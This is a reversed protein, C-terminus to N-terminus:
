DGTVFASTAVQVPKGASTRAETLHVAEAAFATVCLRRSQPDRLAGIADLYARVAARELEVIADATTAATVAAYAPAAAVPEGGLARIRATLADRRSRHADHVSLARDRGAVPLQAGATEVGYVVAHEVALVGNLLSVDDAREQAFTM